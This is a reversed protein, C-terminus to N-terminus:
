RHRYDLRNEIEACGFYGRFRYGQFCRNFYPTICQSFFSRLYEGGIFASFRTQRAPGLVYHLPLMRYRPTDDSNNENSVRIHPISIGTSNSM